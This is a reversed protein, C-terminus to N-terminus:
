DNRDRKKPKSIWVIHITVATGILAMLCIFWLKRIHLTSIILMAWLFILSIMMTKRSIGNRDRYNKIYEMGQSIYTQYRVVYNVQDVGNGRFAAPLFLAIYSLGWFIPNVKIKTDVKTAYKQALMAFISALTIAVGYLIYSGWVGLIIM